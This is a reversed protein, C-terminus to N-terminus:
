QSKRRRFRGLMERLQVLLGRDVTLLIVGCGILFVLGGGVVQLLLLKIGGLSLGKMVRIVAFMLLGPLAYVLNKLLTKGVPLERRVLLVQLLMVSFEAMVTGIVAGLAQLRPILIFNAVFNVAAGVVVSVTYERDQQRPILYQTRIINAWAIFLISPAIYFALEGCVAFEEGFFLPMFTDAVGMIGFVLGMSLVTMAKLSLYVYHRVQDSEGKATLNSVKPLMVTGLANTLSIAVLMINETNQYFGVQANTSMSGLMIKDMMKYVSIAVAPIFLVLNPRIHPLMDRWRTKRFHIYRPLYLWLAAQSIVTGVLMILAYIYVDNASKVFLFVCGVTLLRVIANRALTVKFQELGFFCWNIDLAVSLLYLTQLYAVTKDETVFLAVYGVYVAMVIVSCTLQLRYLSWFTQNLREPEDRCIAISRNGYNNIGLLAFLAFYAAVSYTYSYTGIGDAGLVRSVYPATILPLILMLVQYVLNYIYNVITRMYNM